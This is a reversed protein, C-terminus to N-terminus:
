RVEFEGVFVTQKADKLRLVVPVVEERRTGFHRSMRVELSVAGTLLAQREGYFNAEVTYKGPKAKRLLFEEPGYGATFDRSMRGGQWTGPNGYYCKEGNPDTVWLDMDSDDADWGLVVRLDVPLNRLLRADIRHTDIPQPATAVIANLEGLAILAIGGFSDDWDGRVVEHLRDVAAQYHGSAALALALDRHSQPEEESMALVRRLVPVALAAEGAQNLRYALVRLLRRDEINLEALNSLVRLALAREGKEFLVDAVDLYFAPSDRQSEREDLYLAYARHGDVERLRRALPSDASWPQLTIAISAGSREDQPAASGAVAISDLTTGSAPAGPASMRAEAFNAPAPAAAATDRASQAQLAQERAQEPSPKPRPPAGKPWDREWWRIREAYAEAIADIRAREAEADDRRQQVRVSDFAARLPEPPTIDYALYDDLTELVILSTQATVLGFREGLRRIQTAHADPDASWRDIWYAAWNQPIPGSLAAQRADIDMAREQVSGDADRWRLRLRGKEGVLRGAVRLMGDRVVDGQAIWDDGGSLEVQLLRPPEHLLADVARQPAAPDIAIMQGDHAEAWVRLRNGDARAGAAHLAHLPVGDALAPLPQREGYNDLGDSFLLYAQAGPVPSWGILKSAGDYVTARLENILASADGGRVDFRRAPEAVDRLRVLSVQVDGLAALYRSLVTLEVERNRELASASSDWLLAISQPQVARPSAGKGVPQEALFYIEDHMRQTYVRPGDVRPLHLELTGRGDFHRRRLAANWGGTSRDFHLARALTGTARPQADAGEVRLSWDMLAADRAFGLSVPLRWAGEILGLPESYVLRVTRTGGPTIPYVRLRFHNGATQELLGPDVRREEIDDFVRRGKDKPVPVAARMAGDIDLAFGTIRQGDHLPFNLQGELVRDGPNFFTLEVTTQALGGVVITEAHAEGLRVPMDSDGAIEMLPPAAAIRAARATQSSVTGAPLVLLAALSALLPSTILSRLTRHM